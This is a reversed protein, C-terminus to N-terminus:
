RGGAVGLLAAEDLGHPPFVLIQLHRGFGHEAGLFDGRAFLKVVGFHQAEHCADPAFLSSIEPMLRTSRLRGSKHEAEDILAQSNRECSM